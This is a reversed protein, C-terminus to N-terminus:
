KKDSKSETVTFPALNVGSNKSGSVKRKTNIKQEKRLINEEKRTNIEENLMPSGAGGIDPDYNNGNPDARGSEVEGADIHTSHLIEHGVIIQSEEFDLSGDEATVVVTENPNILIASGSGKLPDVMGIESEATTQNRGDTQDITHLNSSTVLQSISRTGLPKSPNTASHIIQVVGNKDIELKDDTLKQLQALIFGRFVPDKSLVKIEKGDPDVAIIPMNGVFNYPSMSPYKRALPDISLWRSVIEPKLTAESHMTDTEIFYEIKNTRTNFMVSGIKRLTDNEFIEPYKGNTLSLIEPAPKGISKFPNPNQAVVSQETFAFIAIFIIRKM